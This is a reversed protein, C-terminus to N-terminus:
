KDGKYDRISRGTLTFVLSAPASKVTGADEPVSVGSRGMVGKVLM